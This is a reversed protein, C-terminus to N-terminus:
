KLPTIQKISKDIAHVLTQTCERILEEAPDPHEYLRYLFICLCARWSSVRLQM